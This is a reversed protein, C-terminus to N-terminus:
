EMLSSQAKANLVARKSLGRWFTRYFRKPKHNEGPRMLRIPEQMNSDTALHVSEEIMSEELNDADIPISEASKTAGKYVAMEMADSIYTDAIWVGGICDATLSPILDNENSRLSSRQIELDVFDKQLLLPSAFQMQRYAATHFIRKNQITRRRPKSIGFIAIILEFRQLKEISRVTIGAFLDILHM